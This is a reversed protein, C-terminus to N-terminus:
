AMPNTYHFMDMLDRRLTKKAYDMDGNTYVTTRRTKNGYSVFSKVLGNSGKHAKGTKASEEIYKFYETHIVGGGCTCVKGVVEEAHFLLDEFRIVLRPFAADIWQSYWDNWLGALSEHETVNTDSYHVNVPITPKGKAYKLDLATIPILNPCHKEDHNWNASYSHRCMSNMWTYPDKIVTAPLFNTQNVTVQDSAVHHLRWTAPSHKGWPVQGRMGISEKGHVEMKEPIHCNQRLLNTLLNTGTNFMGAPGVYADEPKVNRRFEECRELGLIVPSSGYMEVVDAKPPIKIREDETVDVKAALLIDELDRLKVDELLLSKFNDISENDQPIQKEPIDELGTRPPTLPIVWRRSREQLDLYEVTFVQVLVSFSFLALLAILIREGGVGLM